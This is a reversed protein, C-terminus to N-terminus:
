YRYNKTPKRCKVQSRWNNEPGSSVELKAKKRKLVLGEVFDIPTYKDFLAKFESEYSKVRYVNDSIKYLYEKESDIKGYLEDLLLIRDEFTRGVLYDDDYVLIDFIILKHNFPINNDGLKNKNLYEANIVVWGGNGRYISKIEDDTLQFNTLRQGHRNMVRHDKGNTSLVCNSGNSKIQSIMSGDDYSSLDNSEIMNKPRPQYIFKNYIAM